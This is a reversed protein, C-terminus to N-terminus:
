KAVMNNWLHITYLLPVHDQMPEPIWGSATGSPAPTTAEELPAEVSPGPLGHLKGRQDIYRPEGVHRYVGEPPIRAVIDRHNVVRYATVRFGDAFEADGVRPCGFNYLRGGTGYRDAALVALAGGLSHGTFWITRGGAALADIRPALEEWVEELARQFGSHVKGGREWDALRVDLNVLLDATIKQLDVKGARKWLESGRFAVIAFQRNAAVYCQTSRGKFFQVQPLGAERFRARVFEEEAYVLTSAESLWWCNTLDFSKAHHRFPHTQHDKFYQYNKFPPSLNDLTITPVQRLGAAPPEGTDAPSEVPVTLFLLAIALGIHIATLNLM